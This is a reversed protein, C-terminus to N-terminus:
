IQRKVRSIDREIHAIDQPSGYQQFLQLAEQYKILAEKYYGQEEFVLGIHELDLWTSPSLKSESASKRIGTGDGTGKKGQELAEDYKEMRDLLQAIRYHSIVSGVGNGVEEELALGEQELNLAQDYEGRDQYIQAQQSIVSAM